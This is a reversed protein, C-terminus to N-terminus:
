LMTYWLAKLQPAPGFSAPVQSVVCLYQELEVSAAVNCTGTATAYDSADSVPVGSVPIAAM